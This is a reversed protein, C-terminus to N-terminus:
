TATWQQRGTINLANVGSATLFLVCFEGKVDLSIGKSKEQWNGKWFSRIDYNWGSKTEKNQPKHNQLKITQRSHEMDVIDIIKEMTAQYRQKEVITQRRGLM